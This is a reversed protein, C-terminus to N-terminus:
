KERERETIVIRAFCNRLELERRRQRDTQRGTDRDRDRETDRERGRDRERRPFYLMKDTIDHVRSVNTNVVCIFFLCFILLSLCAQDPSPACQMGCMWAKLLYTVSCAVRTHTHTHTYTHTHTHTYSHTHTHTHAHSHMHTCAHM